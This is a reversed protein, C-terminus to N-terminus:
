AMGKGRKLRIDGPIGGGRGLGQVVDLVALFHRDAADDRAHLDLHGLFALFFHRDQVKFVERAGDFDDHEGVQVFGRLVQEQGVRRQDHRALQVLALLAVLDLGEPQVQQGLDLFFAGGPHVDPEVGRAKGLVVQDLYLVDQEAVLAVDGDIEAELVRGASVGQDGDAPLDAHIRALLQDALDLGHEARAHNGQSLSYM